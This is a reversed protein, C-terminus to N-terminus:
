VDAADHGAMIAFTKGEAPSNCFRDGTEFTLRWAQRRCASQAIPM